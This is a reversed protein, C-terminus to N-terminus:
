YLDPVNSAYPIHVEEYVEPVTASSAKDYVHLVRNVRKAIFDENGTFHHEKILHNRYTEKRLFNKGCIHCQFKSGTHLLMHRSLSAKRAFKSFCVECTFRKEGTHTVMHSNLISQSTCRYECLQCEYHGPQTHRRYHAKLCGPTKFGSGCIECIFSRDENHTMQHSRLNSLDAFKFGCVDCAFPREGTHIRIHSRMNGAQKTVKECINCKYIREGEDTMEVTFNSSNKSYFNTKDYKRRKKESTTEGKIGKGKRKPTKMLDDEDDDDGEEGPLTLNEGIEIEDFDDMDDDGDDDMDEGEDEIEEEGDDCQELFSNTDKDLQTGDLAVGQAKEIEEYKEGEDEVKVTPASTMVVKPKSYNHADMATRPKKPKRKKAREAKEAAYDKIEEYEYGDEGLKEFAEVEDAEVVQLGQKAIRFFFRTTGNVTEEKELASVHLESDVEIEINFYKVEMSDYTVPPLMLTTKDNGEQVFKFEYDSQFVGYNDFVDAEDESSESMDDRPEEAEAM